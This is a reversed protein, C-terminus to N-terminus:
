FFQFFLLYISKLHKFKKKTLFKAIALILVIKMIESPQVNVGFYKDVKKSGKWCIWLLNCINFFYAWFIYFILMNKSIFKYEDYSSFVYYIHRFNIKFYSFINSEFGRSKICQLDNCHWCIIYFVLSILTWHLNKFKFILEKM